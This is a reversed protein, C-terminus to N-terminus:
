DEGRCYPGARLASNGPSALRAVGREAPHAEGTVTILMDPAKFPKVVRRRLPLVESPVPQFGARKKAQNVRRLLLLMQRRVPACPEFPLQYFELALNRVSRHVALDVLCDRLEKYTKRDVEVDAHWRPDVEGEREDLQWWPVQCLVRDVEYGVLVGCWCRKRKTM